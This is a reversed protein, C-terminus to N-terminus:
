KKNHMTETTPTTTGTHRNTDKKLSDPTVLNTDKKFTGTARIRDSKVSDVNASSKGKCAAFSIAVALALLENKVTKKM